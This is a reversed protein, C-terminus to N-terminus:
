EDLLIIDRVPQYRLSDLKRRMTQYPTPEPVGCLILDFLSPSYGAIMQVNRADPLAPYGGTDGRLNWHVTRPKSYGVGSVENGVQAFMEEMRGEMTKDYGFQHHDFQEDSLICLDPVSDQPLKYKRVLECIRTMALHFNTTYGMPLDQIRKVKQSFTACGSLDVVHCDSDFTILLNACPGSNLESLMIGLGIAAMKPTGNMSPSMDVMPIIQDMPQYGDARAQAVKARVSDRLSVWQANILDIEESTPVTTILASVMSDPSVQSGKVKGAKVALLWRSRATMRDENDPYRLEGRAEPDSSINLFSKRWKFACVSPCKEPDIEAWTGECMHTEAIDLKSRLKTLSIRYENERVAFRRLMAKFVKHNYKAFHGRETPLWKALLSISKDSDTELTELDKVWQTFVVEIIAHTVGDIIGQTVFLTKTDPQAQQAQQAQAKHREAFQKARRGIRKTVNNDDSIDSITSDSDHALPQTQELAKPEFFKNYERIYDILNFLDNWSGYEPILSILKQIEFGSPYESVIRWFLHYFIKREGEGGRCDRKEFALVFLDRCFMNAQTQDRLQIDLIQDVAKTVLGDLNPLPINRVAKSFIALRADGLGDLTYEPCGNEGLALGAGLQTSQQDTNAEFGARLADAFLKISNSM